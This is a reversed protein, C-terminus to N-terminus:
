AADNFLELPLDLCLIAIQSTGNVLTVAPTLNGVEGDMLYCCVCHTTLCWHQDGGRLISFILTTWRRYAISLTRSEYRAIIFHSLAFYYLRRGLHTSMM